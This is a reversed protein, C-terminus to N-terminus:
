SVAGSVSRSAPIATREWVCGLVVIPTLRYLAAALMIHRDIEGADAHFVVFALAYVAAIYALAFLDIFCLRRTVVACAIPALALWVWIRFPLLIADYYPILDRAIDPFRVGGTYYDNQARAMIIDIWAILQRHPAVTALWAVYTTRSEDDLWRQFAPTQQRFEPSYDALMQGQHALLAPERPLGRRYFEDALEADPLIRTLVINTMRNQWNRSDKDLVVGFLLFVAAAAVAISGLARWHSRHWALLAAAFIPVVVFNEVRVGTFLLALAGWAAFRRATWQRGLALTAAGLADGFTLSLPESLVTFNWLAVPLAAALGAAALAGVVGLAAWGFLTWAVISLVSQVVRVASGSGILTYFLWATPPRGITWQLYTASDPFLKVPQERHQGPPFSLVVAVAIIAALLLRRDRLM